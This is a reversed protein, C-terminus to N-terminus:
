SRGATRTYVQPSISYSYQMGSLASRLPSAPDALQEELYRKFSKLDNQAVDLNYVASVLERVAPPLMM